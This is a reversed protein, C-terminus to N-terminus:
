QEGGHQIPLLGVHTMWREIVCRLAVLMNKFNSMCALGPLGMDQLGRVVAKCCLVRAPAGVLLLVPPMAM